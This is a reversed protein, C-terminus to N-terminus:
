RSSDKLSGPTLPHPNFTPDGGRSILIWSFLWFLLYKFFFSFFFFFYCASPSIGIKFIVRYSFSCTFGLIFRLCYNPCAGDVSPIKLCRLINDYIFKCTYFCNMWILLIKFCRREVCKISWDWLQICVTNQEKNKKPNHNPCKVFYILWDVNWNIWKYYLIPSICHPM